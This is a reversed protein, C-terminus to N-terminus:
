FYKNLIDEVNSYIMDSINIFEFQDYITDSYIYEGYNNFDWTGDRTNRVLAQFFCYSVLRLEDISKITRNISYKKVRIQNKSHITVIELIINSKLSVIIKNDDMFSLDSKNKIIEFVKAQLPDTGKLNDLLILKNPEKLEKLLKKLSNNWIITDIESVKSQTFCIEACIFFLLLYLLRM